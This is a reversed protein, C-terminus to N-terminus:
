PPRCLLKLGPIQAFLGHLSKSHTDKVGVEGVVARILLPCRISGNSGFIASSIM